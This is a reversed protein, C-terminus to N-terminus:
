ATPDPSQKTAVARELAPVVVTLSFATAAHAVMAAELGRRWYLTGFVVGPVGNLALTRVAAARGRLGLSRVMPMHSVGFLLSSGVIAPVM